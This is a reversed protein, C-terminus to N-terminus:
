MPACGCCARDLVSWVFNEADVLLRDGCGIVPVSQLIRRASTKRSRLRIGQPVPVPSRRMASSTAAPRVLEPVTWIVLVLLVVVLLAALPVLVLRVPLALRLRRGCSLGACRAAASAARAAFIAARCSRIPSCTSASVASGCYSM